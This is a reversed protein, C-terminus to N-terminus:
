YWIFFFVTGSFVLINMTKQISQFNGTRENRTKLSIQTKFLFNNESKTDTDYDMELDTCQSLGVSQIDLWQLGSILM